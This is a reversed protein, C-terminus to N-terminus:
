KTVHSSSQQSSANTSVSPSVSVDLSLPCCSEVCSVGSSVCRELLSRDCSVVRQHTYALDDREHFPLYDYM